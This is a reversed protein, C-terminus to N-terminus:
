HWIHRVVGNVIECRSVLVDVRYTTCVGLFFDAFETWFPAMFMRVAGAPTGGVVTPALINLPFPRGVCDMDGIEADGRGARECKGGPGLRQNLHKRSQFSCSLM